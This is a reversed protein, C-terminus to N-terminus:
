CLRLIVHVISNKKINYDALTKTDQLQKGAHILRQQIVPIGEKKEIIAKVMSVLFKLEVDITFEKGTM